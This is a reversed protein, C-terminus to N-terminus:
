TVVSAGAGITLPDDRWLTTLAYIMYAAMMAILAWKLRTRADGFPHRARRMFDHGASWAVHGTDNGHRTDTSFTKCYDHHNSNGRAM